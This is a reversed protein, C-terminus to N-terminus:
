EDAGQDAASEEAPAPFWVQAMVGGENRLTLRGNLDREALTLAVQLGVHADRVADFGPPLGPGNDHVWLLLGGDAPGLGVQLHGGQRGVIAYKCANIVLECLILALTTAAKSPLLLPAVKMELTPRWAKGNMNALVMPVLREAVVRMNVARVDADHSLQDHVLAITSIRESINRLSQHSRADMGASLGELYLLDSIAQLNNKIRHHTERMLIKMQESKAQESALLRIREEEMRVRATINQTVAMGSTIKGADDTIPLAHV